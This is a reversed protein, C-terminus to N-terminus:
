LEVRMLVFGTIISFEEKKKDATLQATLQM